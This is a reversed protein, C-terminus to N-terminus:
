TTVEDIQKMEWTPHFPGSVKHDGDFRINIYQGNASAVSGQKPGANRDGTYEVRSGRRLSLDYTRNVYEFPNM